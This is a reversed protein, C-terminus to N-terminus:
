NSAAAAQIAFGTRLLEGSKGPSRAIARLTERGAICAARWDNTNDMNKFAQNVRNTHDGLARIRADAEQVLTRAAPLMEEDSLTRAAPEGTLAALFARMYIALSSQLTTIPQSLLWRKELKTSEVVSMRSAMLDACEKDGIDNTMDAFREILTRLDRDPLASLGEAQVRIITSLTMVKAREINGTEQLIPYLRATILAVTSPDTFLTAFHERLVAVQEENAGVWSSRIIRDLKEPTGFAGMISQALAVKQDTYVDQAHACAPCGLSAWLVLMAVQAALRSPLKVM